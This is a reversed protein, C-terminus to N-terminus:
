MQFVKFVTCRQLYRIFICSCIVIYGVNYSWTVVGSSYRKMYKIFIYKQMFYPITPMIIFVLM